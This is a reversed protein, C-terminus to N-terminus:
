LHKQTHWHNGKFIYVTNKMEEATPPMNNKGWKKAMYNINSNYWQDASDRVSLIFKSGPFAQDMATYTYPLSFPIDQFFQPKRCFNIIRSFDRNVWDDFLMRADGEHGIKFELDEMAKTLSSTGTKNCGVGFIKPYTPKKINLFYLLNRTRRRLKLGTNIKMFLLM